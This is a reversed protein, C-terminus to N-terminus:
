PVKLFIVNSTTSHIYTDTVAGDEFTPLTARYYAANDIATTTTYVIHGGHGCAAGIAEYQPYNQWPGTKHTSYQFTTYLVFGDLGLGPISSTFGLCASLKLGGSRNVTGTFETYVAPVTVKLATYLSVGQLWTTTPSFKVRWDAGITKPLTVRYSGNTATQATVVVANPRSSSNNYVAVKMPSAFPVYSGTDNRQYTLSGGLTVKTGYTVSGSSLKDTLRVPNPRIALTLTQSSASRHAATAAVAAYVFPSSDYETASPAVTVTFVGNVNTTVTVPTSLAWEETFTVPGEYLSTTGDPNHQTVTGTLTATRHDYDLTTSDAALTMTESPLFEWAGANSGTAVTGGQDTADVTINYTGPPLQSPTIPTAVTWTSQYPSYGGGTSSTETVAPDLLDASTDQSLVHVDLTTIPTTSTVYVSLDGVSSDPSAAYDMTIYDPTIIRGGASAATAPVVLLALIAAALVGARTRSM